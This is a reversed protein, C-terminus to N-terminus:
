HVQRTTHVDVVIAASHIGGDPYNALFWAQYHVQGISCQPNYKHQKGTNWFQWLDGMDSQVISELSRSSVTTSYRKIVM